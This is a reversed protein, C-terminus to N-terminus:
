NYQFRIGFDITMGYHQIKSNWPAGAILDRDGSGTVNNINCFVQMNYWPLKQKLSIDWRNYVDTFKVLEPYFNSGKFIKSQYLTSIRASFGKIDYGIQMNFVHDPQQVLQGEFYSDINEYVTELTVPDIEKKVVTRPYKAKSHIYSYNFNLVLGKWYGPLYWFSTQWDFEVGKVFAKHENNAQTYIDRKWVLDEM